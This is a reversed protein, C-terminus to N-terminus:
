FAIINKKKQLNCKIDEMLSSFNKEEIEKRFKLNYTKEFNFRKVKKEGSDEVVQNQKTINSDSEMAELELKKFYYINLKENESNENGNGM